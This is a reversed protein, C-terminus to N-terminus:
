GPKNYRHGRNMGARLALSKLTRLFHGNPKGGKGPFILRSDPYKQRRARLTDVLSDPIPIEGEEKDKPSFGLDFKETVCFTKATFNV